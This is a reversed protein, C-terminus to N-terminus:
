KIQINQATEIRAGDFVEGADLLDKLTERNITPKGYRLLYDHEREAYAIFAAEDDVIVRESKRFTIKNRTTEIETRGARLLTSSLYATLGEVVREKKRRRAKLRDEEVKIAGIEATYNKIVCAINDAKKDLEAEIAELTDPIAEDPIEGAEIAALFAEYDAAIEYLKM